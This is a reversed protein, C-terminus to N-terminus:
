PLEPNILLSVATGIASGPISLFTGPQSAFLSPGNVM